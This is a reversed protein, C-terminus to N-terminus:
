EACNFVIYSLASYHFVILRQADLSVYHLPTYCLYIHLLPAYSFAAYRFEYSRLPACCFLLVGMLWLPPAASSLTAQGLPM